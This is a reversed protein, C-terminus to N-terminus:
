PAKGRSSGSGATGAGGVDLCARLRQALVRVHPERILTGHNGPVEHVDLGGRAVQQWGLFPDRAHGGLRDEARFLTIRGPYPRAVYAGAALLGAVDRPLQTSPLPKGFLASVRHILKWFTRRTRIWLAKVKEALYAPWNGLRLRSLNRGHEWVRQLPGLKVAHGPCGTDLLALLAVTEGQDQLQQAMEFAVMGGFSLGGLHYPGRPQVQRLERVYAAAMEEINWSLARAGETTPAQFSYFPQDDGLHRSLERYCLVEGGVAHVCFFPPRSGHPQLAVLRSGSSLWDHQRLVEALQAITPARLLAALPLRFGLAKDIRAFLKVALLSHGGLEFFNDDIGVRQLGLM